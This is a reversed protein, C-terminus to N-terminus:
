ASMETDDGDPGLLTRSRVGEGLTFIIAPAWAEAEPAAPEYRVAWSILRAAEDLEWALRAARADAVRLVIEAARGGLRERSGEAHRLCLGDSRGFRERWPRSELLAGLLSITRAAATAAAECAVCQRERRQRASVIRRRADREPATFADVAPGLSPIRRGPPLVRQALWAARARLPRPPVTGARPLAGLTGQWARLSGAVGRAAAAPWSTAADHLHRRCLRDLDRLDQREPRNALWMIPWRAAMRTADCVPCTGAELARDLLDAAADRRAQRADPVRGGRLAVLRIAHDLDEGAVATLARDLDAMVAERWREQLDAAIEPVRWHGVADLLRDLHPMCIPGEAGLTRSANRAVPDALLWLAHTEAWRETECSPCGRGITRGGAPGPAAARRGLWARLLERYPATMRSADAAQVVHRGHRVCFGGRRMSETFWSEGIKEAFIFFLRRELAAGMFACVVCASIRDPVLPEIELEAPDGTPAAATM